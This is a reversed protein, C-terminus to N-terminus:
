PRDPSELARWLAFSTVIATFAIAYWIFRSKGAKIPQNQGGWSAPAAPAPVGAPPPAAAEPDLVVRYATGEPIVRVDDEVAILVAGRSCRVVLEKANLLTVNAVTPQDSRPKFAAAGAHLVFANEGVTSFAATGGTLTASPPGDGTGWVLRSSGTLVVRAAGARIQLSGVRDTNLSDGAFVTAGVSAEATGVHAREASVVTGLGLGSSGWIPTSLLSISLFLSLTISLLGRVRPM